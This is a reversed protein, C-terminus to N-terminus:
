PDPIDLTAASLRELYAALPVDPFARAIEDLIANILMLRAAQLEAFEEPSSSPGATENHAEEYCALTSDLEELLVHAAGHLLPALQTFLACAPVVPAFLVLALISYKKRRMM